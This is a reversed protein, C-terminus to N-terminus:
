LYSLCAEPYSDSGFTTIESESFIAGSTQLITQIVHKMRRLKRDLLASLIAYVLLVYLFIINEMGFEFSFLKWCLLVVLQVNLFIAVSISIFFSM